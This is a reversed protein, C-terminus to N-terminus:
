ASSPQGARLVGGPLAPKHPRENTWGVELILTDLAPQSRDGIRTQDALIRATKPDIIFTRTLKGARGTAVGDGAVVVLAHTPRIEIGVGPRGLEDQTPGISRVGPMDALARFAASRVGPPVPPYVLLDSLENEVNLDVVAKGASPDLDHKAMEVLWGRLAAPREPLRQLQRFTLDHGETIEFTDQGFGMVSATGPATRLCIPQPPSTDTQGICWRRPSGNRRWAAEDKPTKPRVWERRGLWSRGGHSTWNETVSLQELTYRDDGHGFRQPLTTRSMSRVHWYKGTASDSEALVAAALLVSRASGGTVVPAGAGGGPSTGEGSVLTAVALVAAAAAGMLGLAFVSRIAGRRIRRVLGVGGTPSGLLRGRGEAVVEASPAPEALLQRVMSLEDM